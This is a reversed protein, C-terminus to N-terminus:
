KKNMDEGMLLFYIFLVVKNINGSSTFEETWQRLNEKIFAMVSEKISM